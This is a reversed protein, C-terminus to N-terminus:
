LVTALFTSEGRWWAMAKSWIPAEGLRAAKQFFPGLIKVLVTETM